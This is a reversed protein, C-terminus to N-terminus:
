GKVTSLTANCNRCKSGRALPALLILIAAIGYAFPAIMLVVPILLIGIISIALVVCTLPVGFIIGAALVLMTVWNPIMTYHGCNKCKKNM